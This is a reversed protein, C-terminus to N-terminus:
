IALRVSKDVFWGSWSKNKQKGKGGAAKKKKSKRKEKIYRILKPLFLMLPLALIAIEPVPIATMQIILWDGETLMTRNSCSTCEIQGDFVATTPSISTSRQRDIAGTTTLEGLNQTGDSIRIKGTGSPSKGDSVFIVSEHYYTITGSLNSTSFSNAYGMNAYSGTTSERQNVYLQTTEVASIGNTADAQELIIKANQVDCTYSANSTKMRGEYETGATLSISGSRQRTYSTSATTIESSTVQTGGITFLAVSCTGAANAIQITSEFYITPSPTFQTGATDSCATGTSASDHCYYKPTAFTTYTTAVTGTNSGIEFQSQTKTIMGDAAGVQLIILRASEISATSAGNSIKIRVTYDDPTAYNTCATFATSARVRTYTTSTTTVTCGSGSIQNGDVDYLSATTTHSANSTKIVAEFYVASIDSYVSADWRILGLSSDTPADTTSTTTGEQDIINIQQEIKPTGAAKAPKPEAFFALYNVLMVIVLFAAIVSRSALSIRRPKIEYGQLPNFSSVPALGGSVQSSFGSVQKAVAPRGFPLGLKFQWIKFRGFVDTVHGTKPTRFWPGEEKEWYGRVAAYAQFPTVLYSLLIFSFVGLYDKEESQELFLGLLNVLPLALFNSFVLSWGLAATWFPLNVKLVVEALFWALTGVMFFAAQMYYPALFAFELKERFTLHPSRVIDKFHKKINFSHGEAWRMRQRILRRITAVAEAPAQIYPTYVVKYGEAYLRLTLEFDETISTGWGFKDLISRRIAYVSGAIM